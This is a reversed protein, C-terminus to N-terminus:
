CSRPSSWRPRWRRAAAVGRAPGSSVTWAVRFHWPGKRGPAAPSKPWRRTRATRSSPSAVTKWCRWIVPWRAGRIPHHTTVLLTRGQRHLATFRAAMDDVGAPGPRHLTQGIPAPRDHVLCRALALRQLMGRSFARARDGARDALGVQSLLEDARAGAEAVGYLQAYFVLNERASLEPVLAGQHSLFGIRRRVEGGGGLPPRGFIECRGSTPRALGGLIRLLTTKGAGNGGFLAVFSGQPVILDLESLVRRRGFRRGLKDARVAANM